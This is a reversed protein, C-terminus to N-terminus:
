KEIVEPIVRPMSNRLFVSYVVIPVKRSRITRNKRCDAKGKNEEIAKLFPILIERKVYRDKFLRIERKGYREKFM